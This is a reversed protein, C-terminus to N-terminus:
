ALAIMDFAVKQPDVFYQGSRVLNKIQNLKSSGPHERIDSVIRSTMNLIEVLENSFVCEDVSLDSMGSSVKRRKKKKDVNPVDAIFNSQTVNYKNILM